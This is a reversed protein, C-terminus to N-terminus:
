ITSMANNDNSERFNTSEHERCFTLREVCCMYFLIYRLIYYSTCAGDAAAAACFSCKKKM